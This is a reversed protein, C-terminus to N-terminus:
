RPFVRSRHTFVAHGNAAPAAAPIVLLSATNGRSVTLFRTCVSTPTLTHVAPYPASPCPSQHLTHAFPSIPSAHRQSNQATANQCRTPITYSRAGRRSPIAFCRTTSERTRCSATSDIAFLATLTYRTIDSVCPLRKWCRFDVLLSMKITLRSYVIQGDQGAKESARKTAQSFPGLLVCQGQDPWTSDLKLRGISHMRHYGVGPKTCATTSTTQFVACSGLTAHLTQHHRCARYLLNRPM